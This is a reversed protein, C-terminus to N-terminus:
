DESVSIVLSVVVRVGVMLWVPSPCPYGIKVLMGTTWEPRELGIMTRCCGARLLGEEWGLSLRQSGWDGQNKGAAGRLREGIEEGNRQTVWQGMPTSKVLSGVAVM